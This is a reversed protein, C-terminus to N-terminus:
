KHIHQTKNKLAEKNGERNKISIFRGRVKRWLGKLHPKKINFYSYRQIVGPAIRLFSDQRAINHKDEVIFLYRQTSSVKKNKLKANVIKELNDKERIYPRDTLRSTMINPLYIIQELFDDTRFKSQIYKKNNESLYKTDTELCILIRKYILEICIICTYEDTEYISTIM